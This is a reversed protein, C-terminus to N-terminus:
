KFIELRLQIEDTIEEPEKGTTNVIIDAVEHYISIRKELLKEATVRPNNGKLLPRSSDNKTRQIIEDISAELLVLKGNVQLHEVNLPDIVAGGGCAIVYNNLNGARKVAERELKRFYKEGDEEFIQKIEKENEEEIVQDTDLFGYSLKEALLKGITTKGTAM